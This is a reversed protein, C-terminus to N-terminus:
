DECRGILYARKNAGNQLYLLQLYLRIGKGLTVLTLVNHLLSEFEDIQNWCM